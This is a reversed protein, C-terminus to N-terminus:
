SFSDPLMLLSYVVFSFLIRFRLYAAIIKAAIRKIEDENDPMLVSCYAPIKDRFAGGLLKHVPVGMKKGLIDWIAM